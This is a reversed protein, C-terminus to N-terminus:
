HFSEGEEVKRKRAEKTKLKKEKRVARRADKQEEWLAQKKLRKLQNKSLTPVPVPTQETLTEQDNVGTATTQTSETQLHDVVPAPASIEQQISEHIDLSM